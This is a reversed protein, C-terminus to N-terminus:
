SGQSQVCVCPPFLGESPRAAPPQTIDTWGFHPSDEWSFLYLATCPEPSLQSCPEAALAAADEPTAQMTTLYRPTTGVICGMAALYDEPDGAGNEFRAQVPTRCLVHAGGQYCNRSGDAAVHLFSGPPCCRQSHDEPAEVLVEGDPCCVGSGPPGEHHWGDQCSDTFDPETGEKVFFETRLAIKNVRIMGHYGQVGYGFSNFDGGLTIFAAGPNDTPLLVYAAGGTVGVGIPLGGGCAYNRELLGSPTRTVMRMVCPINNPDGLGTKRITFTDSTPSDYIVIDQNGEISIFGAVPLGSLVAPTSLEWEIYTDAAAAQAEALQDPDIDTPGVYHCQFKLHADEFIDYFSQYGNICILWSDLPAPVTNVEEILEGTNTWRAKYYLGNESDELEILDIVALGPDSIQYRAEWWQPKGHPYDVTVTQGRGAARIRLNTYRTTQNLCNPQPGGILNFDRCLDTTCFPPWGGWRGISVAEMSWLIGECSPPPGGKGREFLKSQEFEFLKSQETTDLSIMTPCADRRDGDRFLQETEITTPSPPEHWQRGREGTWM